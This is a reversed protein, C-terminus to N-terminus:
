GHRAVWGMLALPNGDPDLFERLRLEQTANRQVVQGADLFKVGRAELAPGLEDMDPADFYLLAGGIPQSPSLGIMLRLGALQFFLMDGAEFLLSLGLTDRYFRRAKALDRTTLAVQALARGALVGDSAPM